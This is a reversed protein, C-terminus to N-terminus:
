PLTFAILTDANEAKTADISRFRAPGGAAIVVYQKGDKGQYTMPVTLASGDIAGTWLEKGTRSDFARFKSDLTAGIFVLGGATAIPGGLNPTGANPFGPYSGLVSRWAVDGTNANVAIMEGWPPQQCPYRDNDIWRTYGGVPRYPVPAGDPAKEMKGTGGLNSVNVFILGLTPDFAVGGWNGGGMTGPFRLSIKMQFPQFPGQHLLEDFSAKCPERVDERKVTMRALPPPKLPFPQTPWSLEGPVDSQPVPREEAGFVPKGTLRDLIFLLGQKTTEVVAPITRGDRKVDILAPPAAIDYDFIDHHVMQYHWRLKGTAADLAVVSNSYLNIGKRDAGYFSDAPNGVPLFVMGRETDLTIPGWLSPGARDKWGGEPWTDAGPEGPRPVTHFRWVLKGTRADFARPDGSPGASVNEQTSPGVIILDKFIAPPSTISYAATAPFQDAVGARLHITGNDGFGAAPQGTKADLAMLRGDSTGFIIRAGSQRDGPWYSVGRLERLRSKPDFKWLEKGTEPELAAIKQAQTTVYMVGGVVIPTTEFNGFEGTKYAWARRLKGVNEPNIQKLPSFRAGGPDHGYAPWETSQAAATGATLLVWVWVRSM